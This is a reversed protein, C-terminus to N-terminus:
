PHSRLVFGLITICLSLFAMITGGVAMGIGPNGPAHSGYILARIGYYIAYVALIGTLFIGFFFGVINVGLSIAGYTLAARAMPNRAKPKAQAPAYALGPQPAGYPAYPQQPYGSQPYGAQPPYGQPLPQSYGTPPYGAPPPYGQPAQPPYGPQGYGPTPQPMGTPEPPYQYPPQPTPQQYPYQNADSPYTM